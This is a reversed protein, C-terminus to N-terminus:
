ADLWTGYDGLVAKLSDVTWDWCGYYNRLCRGLTACLDRSEGETLQDLIGPLRCLEEEPLQLLFNPAFWEHTNGETLCFVEVLQEVTATEWVVPPEVFVGGTGMGRFRWDGAEDQTVYVGSGWGYYGEADADGLGAGAQWYGANVGEFDALKVRFGMGCCFQQPTGKYLDYVETGDTRIDLPKWQVWDPVNRYNEAVQVAIQEAAAAASLSGDVAVDWVRASVADEAILILGDYLKGEFPDGERPNVARLYTVQDNRVVEVVDGGSCCAISTEGSELCLVYGREQQAMQAQWDELAAPSWRYSWEFGQEMGRVNWAYDPIINLYTVTEDPATMWVTFTLDKTIEQYAAAAVAALNGNEDEAPEEALVPEELKVAPVPEEVKVVPVPERWEEALTEPAPTLPINQEQFVGSITEAVAQPQADPTGCVPPESQGCGTLLLMLLVAMLRKM